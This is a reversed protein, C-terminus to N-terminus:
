LGLFEHMQKVGRLLYDELRWKFAAETGQFIMCAKGVVPSSLFTMVIAPLVHVGFEGLMGPEVLGVEVIEYFSNDSLDGSFIQGQGSGIQM